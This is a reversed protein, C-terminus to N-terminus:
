KYRDEQRSRNHRKEKQEPRIFLYGQRNPSIFEDLAQMFSQKKQEM